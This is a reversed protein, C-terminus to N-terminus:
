LTYNKLYYHLNTDIQYFDHIITRAGFGEKWELLGKNIMNGGQENCIGFDFYVYDSYHKQILYDFLFDLCGMDRGVDTGSIYQAHVTKNNIFMTCGAVIVGDLYITHQKINEPFRYYLLEIEKLTHVPSVGHKKQLNPILVENWFIALENFGHKLNINNINTKKISRKRREQYPLQIAQRDIVLATDRRYLNASLKFMIWDIEDAPRTHYIRPINKLLWVMIGHDNLYILVTKVIEITESLRLNDHLVIGGYTLGQHSIIQGECLNAPIVAVLKKEDYIMLSYDIFRDSHYDIFDRFFLFSYNKSSKIFSDWKVKNNQTYREVKIM